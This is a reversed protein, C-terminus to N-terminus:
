LEDRLSPESEGVVRRHAKDYAHRSSELYLVSFAEEVRDRDAATLSSDARCALSLPDVVRVRWVGEFHVTETVM